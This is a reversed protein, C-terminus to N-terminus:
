RTGTWTLTSARSGAQLKFWLPRSVDLANSYLSITRFGAKQEADMLTAVLRGQADFAQLLVKDDKELSLALDVSRSEPNVRISNGGAALNDERIGASSQITFKGSVLTYIQGGDVDIGTQPSGTNNADTCGKVATGDKQCVRIRATTAPTNPVTWLFSKASKPLNAQFTTWTAGDTSLALDIGDHPTDISWAIAVKEGGKFVAGTKPATLNGLHASALGIATSLMGAFIKMNM